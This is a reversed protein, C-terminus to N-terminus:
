KRGTCAEMLMTARKRGKEGPVFEYITKALAYTERSPFRYLMDMLARAQEPEQLYKITEVGQILDVQLLKRAVALCAGRYNSLQNMILSHSGYDYIKLFDAARELAGEV